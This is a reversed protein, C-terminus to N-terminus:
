QVFKILIETLTGPQGKASKINRHTYVRVEDESMRKSIKAKQHLIELPFFEKTSTFPM